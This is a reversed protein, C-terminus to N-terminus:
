TTYRETFENNVIVGATQLSESNTTYLARLFWTADDHVLRLSDQRFVPIKKKIRMAFRGERWDQFAVVGVTSHDNTM